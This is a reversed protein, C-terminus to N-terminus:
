GLLLTQGSSNSRRALTADLPPDGAGLGMTSLGVQVGLARSLGLEIAAKVSYGMSTERQQAGSVARAGGGELHFRLPDAGAAAAMTGIAAFACLGCGWPRYRLM